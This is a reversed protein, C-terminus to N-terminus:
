TVLSARTGGRGFRQHQNRDQRHDNESPISLVSPPSPLLKTHPALPSLHSHPLPTIPLHCTFIVIVIFAPHLYISIPEPRNSPHLDLHFPPSSYQFVARPTRLLSSCLSPPESFAFARPSLTRYSTYRALSQPTRCIRLPEFSPSYTM